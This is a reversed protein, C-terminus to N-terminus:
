TSMKSQAFDKIITHVTPLDAPAWNLESLKEVPIWELRAHEQPSPVGAVVTAYYTHLHVRVEPYEHLYEAVFNNVEIDCGLEERIERVLAQQHTEGPEIKGGPFEWMRALSMEESRLACLINGNDDVIVAGVVEVKNM